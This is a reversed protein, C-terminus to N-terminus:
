IAPGSLKGYLRTGIDSSLRRHRQSLSALEPDVKRRTDGVFPGERSVITPGSAGRPDLYSTQLRHEAEERLQAEIASVTEVGM